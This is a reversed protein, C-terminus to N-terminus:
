IQTERKLKSNSSSNTKNVSSTNNNTENKQKLLFNQDCRKRDTKKELSSIRNKLIEFLLPSNENNNYSVNNKGSINQLAM